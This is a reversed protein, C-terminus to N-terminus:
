SQDCYALCLFVEASNGFKLHGDRTGNKLRELYSTRTAWPVKHRQKSVEEYACYVYPLFLIYTFSTTVQPEKNIFANLDSIGTYGLPKLM